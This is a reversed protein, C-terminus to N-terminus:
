EENLMNRYEGKTVHKGRMTIPKELKIEKDYRHVNKLTFVVPKKTRGHTYTKLEKESLHLNEQHKELIKDVSLLEIEEINGEGVIKMEGKSEYFLLKKCSKLNDSITEHPTYKLFVLKESGFLNNTFTRPVPYIVAFIKDIDDKSKTKRSKLKFM